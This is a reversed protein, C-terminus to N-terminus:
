SPPGPTLDPGTASPTAGSEPSAATTPKTPTPGSVAGVIGPQIKKLQEYWFPAGFLTSTAVVLWEFVAVVYPIGAIATGGIAVPQLDLVGAIGFGFGFTVWRIQGNFKATMRLQSSSFWDATEEIMKVLVVAIKAVDERDPNARIIENCNRRLLNVAMEHLRPSLPFNLQAPNLGQEATDRFHSIPKRDEDEDPLRALEDNAAKEFNLIQMMALGFLKPDMTAPLSSWDSLDAESRVENGLPNFFVNNYLERAAGRFPQDDLLAKVSSLLLKARWGLLSSVVDAISSALYSVTAFVFILNLIIGFLEGLRQM